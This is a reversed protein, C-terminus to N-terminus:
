YISSKRLIGRLTKNRRTAGTAVLRPVALACQSRQAETTRNETVQAYTRYINLADEHLILILNQVVRDGVTSPVRDCVHDAEAM